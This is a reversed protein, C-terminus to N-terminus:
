IVYVLIYLQADVLFLYEKMIIVIFPNEHLFFCLKLALAVPLIGKHTLDQMPKRKEPYLM